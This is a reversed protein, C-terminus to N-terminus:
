PVINKSIFKTGFGLNEHEPQNHETGNRETRNPTKKGGNKEHKHMPLFLAIINYSQRISLRCGHVLVFLTSHSHSLALTQTHTNLAPNKDSDNSYVNFDSLQMSFAM